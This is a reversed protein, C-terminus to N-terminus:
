KKLRKTKILSKVKLSSDLTIGNRFIVAGSDADEENAIIKLLTSKGTGNKAILGVKDGKNLGFSINDFLQKIGYTKSLNEVSLYNM